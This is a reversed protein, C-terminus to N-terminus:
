VGVADMIRSYNKSKRLFYISFFAVLLLLAISWLPLNIRDAPPLTFLQLLYTVLTCIISQLVKGPLYLSVNVKQSIGLVQLFVCTGGFSMFLGCLVIKAGTNELAYLASCGNSLELLGNLIVKYLLPLHGMLRCELLKIMVRFLIVWSCVIGMSKLSAALIPAIQSKNKADKCYVGTNGPILWGVIASSLLLIGWLAWPVWRMDFLGSTIGFLFAPGCNSCVCIMKRADADQLRRTHHADAVLQAGVPYGCLLGAILISQSNEPLHFLKSLWAPGNWEQSALLRALLMMPFISPIVVRLCLQIGEQAGMIANRSDFILVLMGMLLSIVKVM